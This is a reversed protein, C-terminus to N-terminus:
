GSMVSERGEPVLISFIMTEVCLFMGQCCGNLGFIIFLMSMSKIELLIYASTGLITIIYVWLSVFYATRPNTKLSLQKVLDTIVYHQIQIFYLSTSSTYSFFPISLCHKILFKRSGPIASIYEALVCLSCEFAKFKYQSVLITQGIYM